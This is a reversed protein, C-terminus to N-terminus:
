REAGRELARLRRCLLRVPEREFPLHQGGFFRQESAIFFAEIEAKVSVFQPARAFLAPLSERSVALGATEDFARHLCRWAEVTEPALRTLAFQARAFPLKRAALWERWRWWGAWGALTSALLTLARRLGRRPGAVDLLPAPADPQMLPLGPDDGALQQVIAGATMPWEPVDLTVGNKAKLTYAPLLYRDIDKSANILQYDLVLWSRGDDDRELHSGRRLTWVGLRDKGPLDQLEVARGEAELLVRQEFLDGVLYGYPRPQVVTAPTANAIGACALVLPLALAVLKM